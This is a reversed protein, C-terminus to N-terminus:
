VAEILDGPQVDADIRPLCLGAKGRRTHLEVVAPTTLMAEGNRIVTVLNGSTFVAGDEPLDGVLVTGRAEIHFVEEVVM